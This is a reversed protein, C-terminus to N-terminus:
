VMEKQVRRVDKFHSVVTNNKSMNMSANHLLSVSKVNRKSVNGTATKGSM